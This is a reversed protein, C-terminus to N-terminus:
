AAAATPAPNGARNINANVTEAAQRAAKTWGEYAANVSDFGTRFAKTTAESGLPANKAVTDVAEMVAQGVTPVQSEVIRVINAQAQSAIGYVDRAYTAVRELPRQSFVTKVVEQPDRAQLVSQTRQRAEELTSKTLSLNLGVIQEVAEFQTKAIALGAEVNARGVTAIKEPVVYM